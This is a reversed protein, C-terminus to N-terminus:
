AFRNGYFPRKRASSGPRKLNNKAPANKSVSPKSSVESLNKVIGENPDKEVGKIFTSHSYEKSSIEEINGKKFSTANPKKNITSLQSNHTAAMTKTSNVNDENKVLLNQDNEDVAIEVIFNSDYKKVSKNKSVYALILVESPDKTIAENPDNEISKIFSNHSYEKSPMEEINGQKSSTTKSRLGINIMSLTSNHTAAVTTTSIANDVNEVPGLLDLHSGDVEEEIVYRRTRGRLFHNKSRSM